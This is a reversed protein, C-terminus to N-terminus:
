STKRTLNQPKFSENTVSFKWAFVTWGGITINKASGLAITDYKGWDLEFPRNLNYSNDYHKCIM